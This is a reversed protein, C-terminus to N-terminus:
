AHVIVVEVMDSGIDRCYYIKQVGFADRPSLVFLMDWVGSELSEVEGVLLGKGIVINPFM